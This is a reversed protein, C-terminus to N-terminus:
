STWGDVHFGGDGIDWDFSLDLHSDTAKLYAHVAEVLARIAQGVNEEEPTKM